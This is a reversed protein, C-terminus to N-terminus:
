AAIGFPTYFAWRAHEREKKWAETTTMPLTGFRPHPDCRSGPPGAEEGCGRRDLPAAFEPWEAFIWAREAELAARARSCHLYRFYPIAGAHLPNWSAPNLFPQAAASHLTRAATYAAARGAEAAISPPTAAAGTATALTVVLVLWM